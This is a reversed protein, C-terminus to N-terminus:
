EASDANTGRDFQQGGIGASLGVQSGIQLPGLDGTIPVQPQLVQRAPADVVAQLVLEVAVDHAVALRGAIEEYTGRFTELRQRQAVSVLTPVESMKM